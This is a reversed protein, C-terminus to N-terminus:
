SYKIRINIPKSKPLNQISSKISFSPIYPLSTTDDVKNDTDKRSEFSTESNLFVSDTTKNRISDDRNKRGGPPLPPTQSRTKTKSKISRLPKKNQGFKTALTKFKMATEAPSKSRFLM